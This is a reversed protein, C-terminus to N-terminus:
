KQVGIARGVAQVILGAVAVVVVGGIWVVASIITRLRGVQAVLGSDPTGNGTVLHRVTQAQASESDAAQRLLKVNTSIEGVVERLDRIEDQLDDMSYSSM